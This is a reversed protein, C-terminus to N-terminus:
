AGAVPEGPRALGDSGARCRRADLPQGAIAFLEAARAFLDAAGPDGGAAALHARAETVAGQWATGRWTAASREAQELWDRAADLRGGDACAIAAPVAIMVQCFLCAFPEDMTAAAEDVVALATRTDPSAAILSGYIRQLLHRALPAWRALPLARRLLREAAARDGVALDVEALRQLVHATGTDAGLHEHLALAETLAARAADVDGALLAAEGAVTAAFAVGRRAGVREAQERLQQALDLVEQYPTPGYLLYEAVCLHSDFVAAALRPNDSTARLEGRLRDFWRGRNHAIMGQLTIVDLLRDPAGPALAMGRAAEVASDAGDLDGTFYALMGRALLIPADDPGGDATLGSLAEEASAMDGGLLAARALRARLGRVRAPDAAALAQRYAAVTAHDGVAALADARLTLLDARAVGDVHDRVADTWRLVQGHLGAAEAARAADLAYPAAASPDGALLLRDAIRAPDAGLATLGAAAQRAVQALPEGSGASLRGATAPDVFRYGSGEAGVLGGGTAEALVRDAAAEDGGSVALVDLRDFREGLAALRRLTSGTAPDLDAAPPADAARVPGTGLSLIEFGPPAADRTRAATVVVVRQTGTLRGVDAVLNQRERDALHLDDLLLVAGTDAAAITVLERVAVLWRQRTTPLRGGFSRDLEYRCRPSLRAPLDPRSRVLDALAAVLPSYPHGGAVTGAIGVARGARRAAQAAEHLLTTKGSRPGGALHLAAAHGTDAVAGLVRGAVDPTAGALGSGDGATWVEAAGDGGTGDGGTGDGGTGDGATGGHGPGSVTVPAVFRYGRGHITRIMRQDRGTDGVARRASKIRSTLASESVFRDGWVEDLLETKTVVRDRHRVLHVLVDFVQPEVEVVRDARRLEFRDPDLECDGFRLTVGTMMTSRAVPRVRGGPDVDGAGPEAGPRGNPEPRGHPGTV